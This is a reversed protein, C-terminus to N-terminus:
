KDFSSSLIKLDKRRIEVAYNPHSGASGKAGKPADTSILMVAVSENLDLVSVTYNDLNLNEKRFEPEAIHVWKLCAGPFEATLKPPSSSTMLTSGGSILAVIFVALVCTKMM